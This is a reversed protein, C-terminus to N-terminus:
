FMICQCSSDPQGFTYISEPESGLTAALASWKDYVLTSAKKVASYDGTFTVTVQNNTTIYCLQLM